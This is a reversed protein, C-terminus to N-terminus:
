PLSTFFTTYRIVNIPELSSGCGSWPTNTPRPSACTLPMQHEFNTWGNTHCQVHGPGLDPLGSLQRHVTSRCPEGDRQRRRLEVTGPARASRHNPGHGGWWRAIDDNTNM